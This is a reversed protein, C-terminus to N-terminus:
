PNKTTSKTEATAIVEIVQNVEACPYDILLKIQFDGPDNNNTASKLEFEQTNIYYSDFVLPGAALIRARIDAIDDENQQAQAQLAAIDHENQTVRGDLAGM